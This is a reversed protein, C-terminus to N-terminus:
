AAGRMTFFTTAFLVPLSTLTTIRFPRKGRHRPPLHPPLHEPPLHRRLAGGLNLGYTRRRTPMTVADEEPAFVRRAQPAENGTM